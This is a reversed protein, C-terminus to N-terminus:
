KGFQADNNGSETIWMDLFSIPDNFDGLWGNRAMTYAGKKRSELFTNWEQNTLSLTIGYSAFCGNIYEAIAKHGSSTNYLYEIKPFDTFQVYEIANGSDDTDEVTKYKFYKKLTAVASECNSKYASAAVNYYGSYGNKAKDGANECFQTGDSETLGYAVYSSAPLQGAQGIEECIYNRDLLLSLAKRADELAVAIETKTKGECYSTPLFNYNNNFIAYYTGLQGSVVFENAYDKKLTPIEANPVEDIFQWTNSTYNALMSVANDSLHMTIKKMKVSDKDIYNENKEFVMYSKHEWKTLKYAGNGIYKAPDTAWAGKADATAPVPMYAPFACLEMFYPVYNSTVVTLTRDADNATVNLKGESYGDIVDFMYGYDAAVEASIARDWSRKFDSANIATGDSFKLGERLKFTYSVKGTASDVVGEPIAEACDSALVLKGDEQVWKILGSFCHMAITAGDVASNLAPDITQPESALCVDINDTNGGVDTYMFFKYGLPSSFFGNVNSKIMYIDTYYYIPVICGTSMLLDEAKHMLATRKETDTEKKVYSIVKDYTEAWTGNEIKDTYGSISTLDLSYIAVKAFSDDEVPKSCASAALAATAMAVTMVASILKKM